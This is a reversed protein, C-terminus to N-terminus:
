LPSFINRAAIHDLPWGMLNMVIRSLVIFNLDSYIVSGREANSETKLILDPVQSAENVLLYLPKWAPLGSTHYLLQRVSIESQWNTRPRIFDSIVNEDSLEADDELAAALLGTVLPKTLSAVDYITDLRAEIREPEVVAYGIADHFMIEDKEAVLYVASPFDNAAIRERLFNSIKEHM